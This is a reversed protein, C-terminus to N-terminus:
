VPAVPRFLEDLGEVRRPTANFTGMWTEPAEMCLFVKYLPSVARFENQMFSFMTNRLAQDYRLKGDDSLFMEGQLALTKLGFRGRMTNKMEPPYRLAGISIWKVENPKFSQTLKRVLGRYLERWEPTHIMPDIHIAIPFGQDACLRAANLRETLSATLHEEREIIAQPNVSWSVVVNSRHKLDVFNKVNDSKTKFELTLHPHRSFWDVLLASNLTLDDLSLSDTVEGTGVRFPAQPFRKVTEELELLAQDINTYAMSVPTNIYSQLYCYSCNMNCQLGLNLVYYNCCAAGQTGPCKKFFSGEHPALYLRKKSMSFDHASLAGEKESYPRSSVKQIQASGLLRRARDALNSEWASEHIFVEDFWTSLDFNMPQQDEGFLM